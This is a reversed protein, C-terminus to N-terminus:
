SSATPSRSTTGPSCPAGKEPVNPRGIVKLRYVSHTLLFLVLRVFATPVVFAAGVAAGLTFLASFIFLGRGNADGAGHRELGATGAWALAAGLAIGGAMLANAIAIIAGRRDEPARWQMIADLPVLLLGASAGMLLM